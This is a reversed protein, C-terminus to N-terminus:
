RGCAGGFSLSSLSRFIPQLTLLTARDEGGGEERKSSLILPFCSRDISQTARLEQISVGSIVLSNAATNKNASRPGERKRESECVCTRYTNNLRRSRTHIKNEERSTKNSNKRGKRSDTFTFTPGIGITACEQVRGASRNPSQTDKDGVARNPWRNSRHDRPAPILTAPSPCTFNISWKQHPVM